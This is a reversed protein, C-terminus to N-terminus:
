RCTALVFQCIANRRNKSFLRRLDEVVVELQVAIRNELSNHLHCLIGGIILSLESKSTLQSKANVEINSFSVVSLSCIMVMKM